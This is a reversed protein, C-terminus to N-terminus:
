LQGSLIDTVQADTLETRFIDRYFAKVEKPLDVGPLRDGHIKSAAWLVTMPQETTRNGWTHAAIPATYVRRDKVAQVPALRADNFVGQADAPSNVLIVQPDWRLLQEITFTLSEAKMDERTVSRGGATEIWWEAIAHPQTLTAPTFYLVRPRQDAPIASTERHVRGVVEDFTKVYAEARAREDFIQGMLTMVQKVDEPDRWQLLVVRLGAKELPEVRPPDMTFVVDPEAKLIEEVNPDNNSAQMMPKENIGPAFLSHYRYRPTRAFQPLGNVITDGKGVAFIFSNIVPVSGVTVVRKIQAPLSVSRNGMDTVTRKSAGPAAQPAISSCGAVLVAILSVLLTLAARAPRRAAFPRHISFM